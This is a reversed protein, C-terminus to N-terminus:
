NFLESIILLVISIGVVWPLCGNSETHKEDDEGGSLKYEMYDDLLDKSSM